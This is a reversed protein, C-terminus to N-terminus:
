RVVVYRHLGLTYLRDKGTFEPMRHVRFIANGDRRTPAFAVYVLEKCDRIRVASKQHDHWRDFEFSQGFFDFLILANGRRFATLKDTLEGSTCLMHRAVFLSSHNQRIILALLEAQFTFHNEHSAIRPELNPIRTGPLLGGLLIIRGEGIQQITDPDSLESKLLACIKFVVASAFRAIIARIFSNKM